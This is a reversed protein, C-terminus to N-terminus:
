DEKSNKKSKTEKAKAYQPYESKRAIKEEWLAIEEKNDDRKAIELRIKCTELTM